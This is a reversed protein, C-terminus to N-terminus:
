RDGAEKIGAEEDTAGVKQMDEKVVHLFRQKPRGRKESGPPKLKVHIVLWM